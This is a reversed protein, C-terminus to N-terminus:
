AGARPAPMLAGLSPRFRREGGLCVVLVGMALYAAAVLRHSAFWGVLSFAALLVPFSALGVLYPWWSKLVGAISGSSALRDRLRWPASFSLLVVATAAFYATVNSRSDDWGLVFAFFPFLVLWIGAGIWYRGYVAAMARWPDFGPTAALERSRRRLGSIPSMDFRGAM